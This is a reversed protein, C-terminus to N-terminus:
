VIPFAAPRRIILAVSTSVFNGLQLRIHPYSRYPEADVYQDMLGPAKNPVLPDAEFGADVLAKLVEDLDSNRFLVTDGETTTDTASTLNLETTHVAIGGPKLCKAQELIFHKALKLNGCHELACSSWTFDFKGALAAPIQNMDIPMWNVLRDFEEQPCLGRQNLAAVAASHQGTRVWPASRADGEPLDSAMVECGRAAFAAPMPERGVGFGLGRKGSVLMGREKLAHYIFVFEWLKRHPHFKERLLPIIAHFWAQHFDHECCARPHCKYHQDTETTEVSLGTLRGLLLLSPWDQKRWFRIGDTVRKTLFANGCAEGLGRGRVLSLDAEIGNWFPHRPESAMFGYDVTNPHHSLSASMPERGGFAISIGQLVEDLDLALPFDAEPAVGGLKALILYRASILRARDSTYGCWDDYFEGCYESIFDEVEGLTWHRIEWVESALKNWHLHSGELLLKGPPVLHLIRPILPDASSNIKLPLM